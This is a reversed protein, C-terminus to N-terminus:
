PEKKGERFANRGDRARRFFDRRRREAKTLNEEDEGSEDDTIVTDIDETSDM